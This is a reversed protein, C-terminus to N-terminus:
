PALQRAPDAGGRAPEGSRRIGGAIGALIIYAPNWVSIVLTAAQASGPNGMGGMPFALVELAGVKGAHLTRGRWRQVDSLRPALRPGRDGAGIQSYAVM